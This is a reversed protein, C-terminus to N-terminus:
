NKMINTGDMWLRELNFYRREEEHFIHVIVDGYDVVIWRGEATGEHRRAAIGQEELKETLADYLARVQLSSRGSAIIISHALITLHSVSLALVDEAKKDELVEIIKNVLEQTENGLEERQSSVSEDM